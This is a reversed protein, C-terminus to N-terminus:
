KATLSGVMGSGMRSMRTPLCGVYSVSSLTMGETM